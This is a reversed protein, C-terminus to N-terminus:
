IRVKELRQGEEDTFYFTRTSDMSSSVVKGDVVDYELYQYRDRAYLVIDNNWLIDDKHLFITLGNQVTTM